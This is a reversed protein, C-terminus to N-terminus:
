FACLDGQFLCALGQSSDKASSRLWPFIKPMRKAVVNGAHELCFVWATKRAGPRQKFLRRSKRMVSPGDTVIASVHDAGIRQVAEAAFSAMRPADQKSDKFDETGLHLRGANNSLWLNVMCHGQSFQGDFSLTGPGARALQLGKETCEEYFSALIKCFDPRSIGQYRGASIYSLLQRTRPHQARSFASATEVIELVQLERARQLDLDGPKDLEQRAVAWQQFECYVQAPKIGEMALKAVQDQPFLKTCPTCRNSGHLKGNM